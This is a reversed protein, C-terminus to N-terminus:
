ATKKIEQRQKNQERLQAAKAEDAAAEDTKGMKRYLIARFDHYTPSDPFLEIARTFDKLANDYDGKHSYVKARESYWEPVRKQYKADIACMDIATSFDAISNDFDELQKFVIARGFYADPDKTGLWIATRFDSLASTYEKLGYHAYARAILAADNKNLRYAEEAAAYACEYEGKDRHMRSYTVFEEATKPTYNNKAGCQEYKVTLPRLLQSCGGASLIILSLGLVLITKQKM